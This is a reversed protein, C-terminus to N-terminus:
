TKVTVPVPGNTRNYSRLGDVTVTGLVQKDVQLVVTLSEPAGPASSRVRGTNLAEMAGVGVREVASKSVVYEGPTLWAPVTDTGRPGGLGGSALYQPVLGGSALTLGGGGGVSYHLTGPLRNLRRALRDLEVYAGSADATVRLKPNKRNLEDAKGGLVGFSWAAQDAQTKTLHGEAQWRRLTEKADDISVSGGEVAAQLSILSSEYGLTAEVVDQNLRIMEDKSVNNDADADSNAKVADTVKQQADRLRNLADQAGFLPDFQARLADSVDRIQDAYSKTEETADSTVDAANSVEENYAAQDKKGEVDAARKSETIDRLEAIKDSSVGAAEALAILKEAAIVNTDATQSIIDDLAGIADAAYLKAKLDKESADTSDGLASTFADVDVKARNMENVLAAVGAAVGILGLAGAARGWRTLGGESDKLSIGVKNFNDRMQIAKGIVTSATGAFVLGVAGFTAFRGVTSQVAPDLNNFKDIVPDVVNLMSSFADVAGVGVGEAVDGLQNKLRELSGAFTKGEEEAFGGVSNKLADVTGKYSDTAFATENVAIGARKLAGANGDVAKAALQSATALDIGKKRALDVVLPTLEKIQDAEMGWQALVAQGGIIDDADAATKDQIADALDAFEEASHGALKANNAVSNELKVMNLRAEESAQATKALGGILLAGTTVMGVGARSLGAGFRDLGTNAKKLEKESATGVKELGKVAGRTDADIVLRLAETLAM